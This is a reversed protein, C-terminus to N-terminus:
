QGAAQGEIAANAQTQGAGQPALLVDHCMGPCFYVSMDECGESGASCARRVRVYDDDPSAIIAHGGVIMKGEANFIQFHSAGPQRPVLAARDSTDFFINLHQENGVIISSAPEPLKIIKIKDPTLRYLPYYGDKNMDQFTTNTQVNPVGLPQPMDQAFSSAPLSLGVAGTIAFFLMMYFIDRVRM